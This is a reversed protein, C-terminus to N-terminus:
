ICNSRKIETLFNNVEEETIEPTQENTEKNKSRHLEKYFSETIEILM